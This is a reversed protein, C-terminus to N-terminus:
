VRQGALLARPLEPASQQLKAWSTDIKMETPRPTARLWGRLDRHHVHRGWCPCPPALVQAPAPDIEVKEEAVPAAMGLVERARAITEARNASAFSGCHRIRHFGNPRVHILLRPIFESRCCCM